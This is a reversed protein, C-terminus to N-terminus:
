PKASAVQVERMSKAIKMERETKSPVVQAGLNTGPRWVQSLFHTDGYRSFVLKGESPIKPAQTGHTLVVANAAGDASRVAIVGTSDIRKISYDGAPLRTNGAYFEFPVTAQVTNEDASVPFSAAWLLLVAIACNRIM